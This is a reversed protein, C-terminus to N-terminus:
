YLISVQCRSLHQKRRLSVWGSVMQGAGIYRLALGRVSHIHSVLHGRRSDKEMRGGAKNRYKRLEQYKAELKIEPEVFRVIPKAFRSHRKVTEWQTLKRKIELDM